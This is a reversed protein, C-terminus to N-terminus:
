VSQPKAGSYKLNSPCTEAVSINICRTIQDNTNTVISMIANPPKERRLCTNFRGFCSMTSVKVEIRIAALQSSNIQAM